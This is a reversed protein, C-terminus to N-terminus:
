TLLCGSGCLLWLGCYWWVKCYETVSSCCCCFLAGAESEAWCQELCHVAPSVHLPFSCWSLLCCAVAATVMGTSFPRQWLSDGHKALKRDYQHTPLLTRSWLSLLQVHMFASIRVKGSGSCQSFSVSCHSLIHPSFIPIYKSSFHHKQSLTLFTRRSVYAHEAQSKPVM